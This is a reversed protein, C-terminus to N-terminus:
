LPEVPRNLALLLTRSRSSSLSSTWGHTPNSWRLILSANQLLLIALAGANLTIGITGEMRGERGQDSLTIDVLWAPQYHIFLLRTLSLKIARFRNKNMNIWWTDTCKHKPFYSVSLRDPLKGDNFLYVWEFKLESGVIWRNISAVWGRSRSIFSEM